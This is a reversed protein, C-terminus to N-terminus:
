VGFDQKITELAEINFCETHGRFKVEPTFQHRKHKAHLYAEITKADQRDKFELTAIETVHQDPHGNAASFRQEVEHNTIGIKLMKEGHSEIRILYVITRGTYSYCAPCGAGNTHSAPAQEFDGHLPCTITVKTHANVYEVKSYDYRDGHVAKADRIFEKTTKRGRERNGDTRCEPCGCSSIHSTPQQDFDGHIPCTITVKTHANVYEVKSYDYRDGHVAKADRIFEETTKRRGM